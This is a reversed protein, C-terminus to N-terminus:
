KDNTERKPLFNEMVWIESISQESTSFAIHRGDPHVSLNMNFGGMELGLKEPIGGKVPIRYLDWKENDKKPSKMTFLIYKGDPTWTFPAGVRIDIGEEFRCLEQLEGGESPIVNLRPIKDSMFFHALIALRQGDPSLSINLPADSRYIEKEKGNTLDRALIQFADAKKDHQVYYITMGDHSLEPATFSINYDSQLITRVNGTQTDVQYFKNTTLDVVIVSHGDPSWRPNSFKELNPFIEHEKGTELSKICLVNGGIKAITYDPYITLPFRRSIYVLYKGDPSYNPTQNYGEFRSIIIKPQALIDGTEPNLETSYINNSKPSYGYYFSGGRTFGLPEISGMSSKVLQPKGQPKGDAIQMAWISLTGNRDSSFIINKGDPAWGLLEDHAPHEVLPIERSGDTPLLFIDREPADEKPPFDYLIYRGDPSFCMNEPWGGNFTKLVRISSNATSILVIQCIWGAKDKREFYALIQKGDPSWDHPNTFNVEENSYLIQTKSSNLGVIRLDCYDNGNYWEYVVQKGDPAWRSSLAFEDSENWSGKNTLRRKEGTALEYIALDGTEWDVYSLYKGDPSPEGMIDVEPSAWLQKIAIGEPEKNIEIESSQALKELPLFDEMVWFEPIGGQYGAFVFRKGDPSWDLNYINANVLGTKIDKLSGDEVSMIKIEKGEKDNFAIKKNDPSWALETFVNFNSVKGVIRSSGDNVNIINLSSPENKSLKDEKLYAIWKGDPSWNISYIFKEPELLLLKPEGGSSNTIYIGMEGYLNFRDKKIKSRVFAILKGDPSWCPSDDSYSTSPNTIKSLREGNLTVTWIQTTPYHNIYVTDEDIKKASIVVQMGDPSLRNGMGYPMFGLQSDHVTLINTDEGGEAPIIALKHDKWGEAEQDADKRFIIHKGDPSWRPQSASSKYVIAAQGGESPLTYLAYQVKNIITGIQNNEGWGTLRIVKQTGEPTNITAKDGAPKGDKNIPIINIKNNEFYDLYAIKSADPSWVPSSANKAPAVLSPNGGSVPVTWLSGGRNGLRKDEVYAIMKGDPSFVPERAPSEVLKKPKGDDVPISYINSEDDNASAYAITKGDPSLNIRYNVERPNCHNEVIKRPNGGEASVVYINQNRKENKPKDQTWIDENIENFAISKGDGSWSLGAWLVKIGETNIQVPKGPLDSGLNGSLPMLWLKENSALLLKQGDPSLAADWSFESPIKIKTFKPILPMKELEEAILILRSLREQATTVIDKQDGYNIIVSKYAQQAQKMGLKEYCLGIHFQAKAAIPRNDSFDKVIKQYVEIAEELEGKVQELQLAKPLLEKATQSLSDFSSLLLGAAIIITLAVKGKM